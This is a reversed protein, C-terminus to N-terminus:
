MGSRVGLHSLAATLQDRTPPDAGARECTLAACATATRLLDTLRATDATLALLDYPAAVGLGALGSLLGATFADGAGITDVVRITPAPCHVSTAPTYATAGAGGDTVVVLPVGLALWRDAAQRETLDPYLWAADEASAKVVHSWRVNGEILARAAYRDPLGAPRINPDYSIVTAGDAHVRRRLAAIRDRGPPLWAALSGTHLFTTDTPLRALEDDTWQWDATGALYFAYSARGADDLTAVALTSPERADVSATLDVGNGRAHDRLMRGFGDDGFRALMRAPHGLRALGIAVNLPSGGPMAEFTRHDGSDVLDVLAEGVIAFATV